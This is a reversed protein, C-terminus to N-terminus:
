PSLLFDGYDAASESRTQDGDSMLALGKLDPPDDEGFHARFDADLDISESKWGLPGGTELIITDQALFLNRKRDCVSGKVGVSSWVYKLTYWRLARKWTVYVVAASDEVGAACEDGGRPLVDARWKWSLHHFSRARDGPVPFGLVATKYGPEYAAHVHPLGPGDALQYYNVPGSESPIIKWDQMPASLDGQAHALGGAFLVIGGLLCAARRGTRRPPAM